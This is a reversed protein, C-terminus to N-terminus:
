SAPGPPGTSPNALLGARAARQHSAVALHALFDLRYPEGGSSASRRFDPDLPAHEASPGNAHSRGEALGPVVTWTASTVAHADATPPRSRLDERGPEGVVRLPLVALCFVAGLLLGLVLRRM